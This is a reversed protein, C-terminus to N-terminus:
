STTLDPRGSRPVSRLECNVVGQTQTCSSRGGACVTTLPLAVTTCTRISELFRFTNSRHDVCLVRRAHASGRIRLTQALKSSSSHQRRELVKRQKGNKGEHKSNRPGAATTMSSSPLVNWEECYKTPTDLRALHNSVPAFNRPLLETRLNQILRKDHRRHQCFHLMSHGLLLPAEIVIPEVQVQGTDEVQVPMQYNLSKGFNLIEDRRVSFWCFIHALLALKNMVGQSMDWTSIVGCSTAIPNGASFISPRYRFWM